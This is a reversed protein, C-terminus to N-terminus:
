DKLIDFTALRYGKRPELKFSFTCPERLMQNLEVRDRFQGSGIRLTTLQQNAMRNLKDWKDKDSLSMLGVISGSESGEYFADTLNKLIFTCRMTNGEARLARL